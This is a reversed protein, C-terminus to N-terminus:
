VLWACRGVVCVHWVYVACVNGVRAPLAVCQPGVRWRHVRCVPVVMGGEEWQRVAHKAPNGGAWGWWGKGKHREGAGSEEVEGVRKGVGRGKCMAM